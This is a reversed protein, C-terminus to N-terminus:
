LLFKFWGPDHSFGSQNVKLSDFRYKLQNLDVHVQASGLMNVIM